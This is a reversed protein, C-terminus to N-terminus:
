QISLLRVLEQEDVVGQEILMTFMQIAGAQIAKLVILSTFEDETNLNFASAMMLEGRSVAVDLITKIPAKVDDPIEDISKEFDADYTYGSCTTLHSGALLTNVGCETCVM